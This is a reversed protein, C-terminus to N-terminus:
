KGEKPPAHQNYSDQVVRYVGTISIAIGVLMFVLLGCPSIGLRHDVWLGLALTLLVATSVIAGLRLILAMPGLTEKFQDRIPIGEWVAGIICSSTPFSLCLLM